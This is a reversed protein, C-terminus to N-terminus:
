SLCGIIRGQVDVRVAKPDNESDDELVLRACVKLRRVQKSYGDCIAKVAGLRLWGSGEGGGDEAGVIKM